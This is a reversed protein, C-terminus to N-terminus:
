EKNKRQYILKWAETMLKDAKNARGSKTTRGTKAPKSGNAQEASSSTVRKGATRGNGSGNGTEKKIDTGSEKVPTSRTAM